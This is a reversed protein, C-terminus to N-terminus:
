VRVRAIAGPGLAALLRRLDARRLTICGETAGLGEGAVHLFIASGRRRIRPRDNYGLVIVLDYLGDARWLREASVPYPHRVFRNYNRDGPADSWGDAAGLVRLPLGTRPRRVRDSRYFVQRLPWAGVPTAGDGERKIVQRGSRGLACRFALNGCKLWGTSDRRSLGLVIIRSSPTTRGTKKRTGPDRPVKM